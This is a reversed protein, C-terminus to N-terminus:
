YYINLHPVLALSTDKIYTPTNAISATYNSVYYNVKNRNFDIGFNESFTVKKFLEAFCFTYGGSRRKM